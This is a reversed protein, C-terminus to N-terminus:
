YCDLLLRQLPSTVELQETAAQVRSEQGQLSLSDPPAMEVYPQGAATGADMMAMTKTALLESVFDPLAYLLNRGAKLTNLELLLVAGVKIQKNHAAIAKKTAPVALQEGWQKLTNPFDVGMAANGSLRTGGKQYQVSLTQLGQRTETHKLQVPATVSSIEGQPTFRSAGYADPYGLGELSLLGDVESQATLTVTRETGEPASRISLSEHSSYLSLFAATPFLIPNPFRQSCVSPALKKLITNYFKLRLVILFIQVQVLVHPGDGRIPGDCKPCQESTDYDGRALKKALQASKCNICQTPPSM